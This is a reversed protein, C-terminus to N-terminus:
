EIDVKLIDKIIYKAYRIHAEKVFHGDAVQGFQFGFHDLATQNSIDDFNLLRWADKLMLNNSNEVLFKYDHWGISTNLFIPDKGTLSNVAYKIAICQYLFLILLQTNDHSQWYSLAYKRFRPLLHDVTAPMATQVWISNDERWDEDNPIGLREKTTLGIFVQDPIKNESALKELDHITRVMIAFMGSGGVAGNQLECNIIKKIQAPYGLNLNATRLKFFLGSDEGLYKSRKNIWKTDYISFENPLYDGPYDPFFDQDALGAGETHSDGNFYLFM